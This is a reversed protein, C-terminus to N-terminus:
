ASRTDTRSWRRIASNRGHRGGNRRCFHFPLGQLCCPGYKGYRIDICRSGKFFCTILRGPLVMHRIILSYIRMGPAYVTCFFGCPKLSAVLFGPNGSACTTVFFPPVAFSCQFLFPTIPMLILRGQLFWPFAPFPNAVILGKDKILPKIVLKGSFVSLVEILQKSLAAPIM